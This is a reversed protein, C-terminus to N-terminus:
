NVTGKKKHKSIYEYSAGFKVFKNLKYTLGLKGRFQDTTSINDQMRYEFGAEADFGKMISKEVVFSTWLGSDTEDAKTKENLFSFTIFYIIIFFIKKM